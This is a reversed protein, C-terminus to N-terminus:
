SEEHIGINNSAHDLHPNLVSIVGRKEKLPKLFELEPFSSPPPQTRL